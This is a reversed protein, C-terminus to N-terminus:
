RRRLAEIAEDEVQWPFKPFKRASPWVQDLTEGDYVFGNKILYRIAGTNRIDDLPNADLVLLDVPAVSPAATVRVTRFLTARNM